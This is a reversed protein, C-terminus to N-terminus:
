LFIHPTRSRLTPHTHPQSESLFQFLRASVYVNRYKYIIYTARKRSVALRSFCTRVRRLSLALSGDFRVPFILHRGRLISNPDLIGSTEPFEAGAGEGAEMRKIISSKFCYQSRETRVLQKTRDPLVCCAAKM